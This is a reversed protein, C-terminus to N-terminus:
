RRRAADTRSPHFLSLLRRHVLLLFSNYGAGERWMESHWIFLHGEAREATQISIAAEADFYLTVTWDLGFFESGRAFLMKELTARHRLLADSARYFRKLNMAEFDIDLSEGLGSTEVFWSRTARESGPAAMRAIMAGLVATREVSFSPAGEPLVGQGGLLEELRVCLTPGEGPPVAFHRGLNLITIQRVKSRVRTSRVLRHTHYREGTASNRTHTRRIYIGTRWGM